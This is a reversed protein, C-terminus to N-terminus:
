QTELLAEVHAAACQGLSRLVYGGELMSVLRPCRALLRRTMGAYGAPTLNLHAITEAAAADFGASLLLFEPAFADLAPEVQEEFAAIFAADGSGAPMPINVTCGEGDGRGREHAMGTGPYLLTGPAEHLSVYLVDRRSEFLHQTGNGHHVDFDVVAVRALGHADVLHQAALAIHNFLCFGTARDAEAHHGPPRVACFANDVQGAMVADCADIVGGAALTAVHYSASCIHTDPSGISGMGEACAMEVLEVYAPEHVATLAALPAPEFVLERMRRRLGAAELAEVVAELREPREPHGHRTQHRHFDPHYVFGTAM